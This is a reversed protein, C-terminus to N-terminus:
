TRPSTCRRSRASWSGWSCCHPSARRPAACTAGPGAAARGALGGSRSPVWGSCYWAPSPPLGATFDDGSPGGSFTYYGAEVAGVLIGTFGVAFALVARTGARVRPYAAAAVLLAALPVLGSVLHDAPSVGPNPQLFNDDAVHLMVVATAGLFVRHRRLTRRARDRMTDPGAPRDTAPRVRQLPLTSTM